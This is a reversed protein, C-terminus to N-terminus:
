RRPTTRRCARPSPTRPAASAARAAARPARPARALEPLVEDAVGRRDEALARELLEALKMAGVQCASCRRRGSRRRRPQALDEVLEVRVHDDLVVDHANGAIGADPRGHTRITEQLGSSTLSGASGGGNEPSGSSSRGPQSANRASYARWIPSICALKAANQARARRAAAAPAALHDVLRRPEVQARGPRPRSGRAAARERRGPVVELRADRAVSSGHAGGSRGVAGSM